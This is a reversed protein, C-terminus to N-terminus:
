WELHHDGQGYGSWPAACFAIDRVAQDHGLYSRLCRVLPSGPESLQSSVKKSDISRRVLNIIIYCIYIYCKNDIYVCIM